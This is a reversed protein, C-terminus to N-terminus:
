FRDCAFFGRMVGKDPRMTEDEFDMVAPFSTEPLEPRSSRGIELYLRLAAAHRESGATEPQPSTRWWDLSLADRGEKLV